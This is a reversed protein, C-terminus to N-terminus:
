KILMTKKANRTSLSGTFAFALCYLRTGHRRRLRTLPATVLAAPAPSVASPRPRAHVGPLSGHRPRPCVSKISGSSLTVDRPRRSAWAAQIRCSRSRQRRRQRQQPKRSRGRLERPSGSERQRRSDTFRVRTNSICSNCGEAVTAATVGRPRRSRQKDEADARAGPNNESEAVPVKCDHMSIKVSM